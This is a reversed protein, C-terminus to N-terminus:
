LSQIPLSYTFIFSNIYFYVKWVEVYPKKHRKHLKRSFQTWKLRGQPKLTKEYAVFGDLISLKLGFQMCSVFIVRRQPLHLKNKAYKPSLQIEWLFEIFGEDRLVL